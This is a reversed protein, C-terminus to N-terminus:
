VMEKGKSKKHPQGASTGSNNSECLIALSTVDNSGGIKALYVAGVYSKLESKKSAGIQITFRNSPVTRYSYNETETKIGIGLEDVSTAFKVKELYFAQQARNM